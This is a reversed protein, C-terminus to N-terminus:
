KLRKRTRFLLVFGLLMTTIGLTILVKTDLMSGTKPLTSILNTSSGSPAGTPGPTLTPIKIKGGGDGEEGPTADGGGPTLDIFENVIEGLDIIAESDDIIIPDFNDKDLLKYGVLTATEELTYKGYDLNKFEVVGNKDSKVVIKRGDEDTLTFEVGTLKDGNENVKILKIKGEGDGPKSDGTGPPIDTFYNIVRGLDKTKKIASIVISDFYDESLIEYGELAKTEKLTYTGYALNSFKVVGNKDTKATIEKGDKDILTFEVGELLKDNLDVKTLKIEGDEPTVVPPDEKENIVDPLLHIKQSASVRASFTGTYKKYGTLGAIEKITYDGYALNNFEVLGTKDSKATAVLNNNSDYLAFTVGELPNTGDTKKFKIEGDKPTYPPYIPPNTPTTPTTRDNEITIEAKKDGKNLDFYYKQNNLKYGNLTKTEQVYYKGYDLGKFEVIGNGDSVGIQILKGNVNYLSFEVGKLLKNSGAEVKTIIIEGKNDTPPINKSNKFKYEITKETPTLTFEYIEKSLLYGAPATKEKIYYKADFKLDKFEAVGDAGTPDSDRLFNNMSDILEFVAGELPQGTAEDIKIIKISGDYLKGWGGLKNYIVEQEGTSSSSEVGEGKFLIENKYTGEKKVKTSFVLKFPGEITEPFIFEFKNTKSNYNVNAATLPIEQGITENGNSDILLKYLKVTDSELELGEQLYDEMTANKITLGQRNGVVNWEIVESGPTYTYGKEILGNTVEQEAKAAIDKVEDSTLKVDNIVKSGVKELIKDDVVKTKFDLQVEESIPKKFKFLVYDMGNETKEEVDIDNITVNADNNRVKLSGTVYKQGAVIADTVVLKTLPLKSENIKVRWSVEKSSPNYGKGYKSLLDKKLTTTASSKDTQPNEGLPTYTLEATNEFEKDNGSKQGEGYDKMRTKFRIHYCDDIDGFNYTIKGNNDINLKNPDHISSATWKGYLELKFSGPIYEQDSPIKDEFIADKVNIRSENVDVVWEIIGNEPRTGDQNYNVYKRIMGVPVGVEKEAEGSTNGDITLEVKNKLTWETNESIDTSFIITRKSNINGLNFVIENDKYTYNPKGGNEPYIKVTSEDLRLVEDLKDRVVVNTLSKNGENVKIIWTVKGKDWDYYGDKSIDSTEDIIDFSHEDDVTYTGDELIAKNYVNCKGTKNDPNLNIKTKFKITHTQNSEENFTFTLIKNVKDYNFTGDVKPDIEATDLIYEQRIEYPKYLIEDKIVTGKSITGENANVTIEWDVEGTQGEKNPTETYKGSKKIDPKVAPKEFEVEIEIKGGAEFEIVKKDGDKVFNGDFGCEIFIEGTIEKGQNEQVYEDFVLKLTKDAKSVILDGIKNGTGQERVEASGDEKIKIEDPLKIIYYDDKEISDSAKIMWDYTIRISDSKNITSGSLPNGDKDAM